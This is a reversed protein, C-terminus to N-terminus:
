SRASYVFEPFKKCIAQGLKSSHHVNCYIRDGQNYPHDAPTHTQVFIISFDRKPYCNVWHDGNGPCYSITVNYPNNDIVFDKGCSYYGVSNDYKCSSPVDIDLLTIDRVYDNNSLFYNEKAEKIAKGFPLVTSVRSKIVAIKFQPLAVSALIGIILVVVLLEILTFGNGRM